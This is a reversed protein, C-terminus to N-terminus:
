VFKSLNKEFRIVPPGTGDVQLSIEITKKSKKKRILEDFAGDVQNPARVASNTINTAAQVFIFSM